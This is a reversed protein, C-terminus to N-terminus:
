LFFEDRDRRYEDANAHWRMPKSTKFNFLFFLTDNHLYQAIM